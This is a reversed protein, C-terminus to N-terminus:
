IRSFGSIAFVGITLRGGGQPSPVSQQHATRLGRLQRNGRRRCRAQCDNTVIFRREMIDQAQKVLYLNIHREKPIHHGRHRSKVTYITEGILARRVGAALAVAVIVPVIVAHGRTMEFVLVIADRLNPVAV